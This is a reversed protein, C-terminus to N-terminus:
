QLQMIKKEQRKLFIQKLQELAFHQFQLIISRMEEALAETFSLVYAKTAYYVATYPGPHYSGTSAVNLIKGKNIKIMENAFVKTLYTVANMNLSMISKDRDYSENIFEGVYGAGANNILIDVNIGLEMIERYLEEVDKEKSLDKSFIFVKVKYENILKERIEILKKKDRACLLLDHQNQAFIKTIEYGIGSTAGTILVNEM